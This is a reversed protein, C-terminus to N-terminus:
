CRSADFAMVQAVSDLGLALALLRDLGLAVGCTAPLGAELAALFRGDLPLPQLGQAIRAGNATELRQRQEHADTLEDYGNALEIGGLYLEFRRASPPDGPDIRAMAARDAPYPSVLTLAPPPPLRPEVVLAQLLDLLEGRQASAPPEIGAAKLRAMLRQTDDHHCDVQALHAFLAAYSMRVPAPGPVLTRVLAVTEDMLQSLDWGPRYWELLTFEPNHWRGQEDARFVRAIQFIAGMGAALLRKMCTEPSTPLLGRRGGPTQQWSIPELHPEPAVGTLLAPTEVELVGRAAFFERIRGLLAARAVLVERSASPGWAAGHPLTM